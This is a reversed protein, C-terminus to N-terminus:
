QKIEKKKTATKLTTFYESVMVMSVMTVMSGIKRLTALNTLTTHTDSFNVVSFAKTCQQM